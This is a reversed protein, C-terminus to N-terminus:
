VRFLYMQYRDSFAVKIQQIPANNQSDISHYEHSIHNNKPIGNPRSKKIFRLNSCVFFFMLICSLNPWLLFRQENWASCFLFGFSHEALEKKFVRFNLKCRRIVVCEYISCIVKESVM